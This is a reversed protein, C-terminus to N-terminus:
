RWGLVSVDVTGSPAAFTIITDDAEKVVNLAPLSYGDSTWNIEQSGDVTGTIKAQVTAGEIHIVVHKTDVGLSISQGETGVGTFRKTIVESGKDVLALGNDDRLIPKIPM